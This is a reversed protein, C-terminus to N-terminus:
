RRWSRAWCCPWSQEGKRHPETGEKRKESVHWPRAAAQLDGLPVRQSAPGLASGRFAQTLSPCEQAFPAHQPATPPCAAVAQADAVEDNGATGPQADHQELQQELEGQEAAM